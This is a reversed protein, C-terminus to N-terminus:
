TRTKFYSDKRIVLGDKFTYIDCGMWDQHGHNTSTATRRWSSLAQEDSVAFNEGIWKIDPSDSFLHEFADRLAKKGKIRAGYIEGGVPTLFEGDEAFHSLAKDIDHQNFADCLSNLQEIKFHAVM